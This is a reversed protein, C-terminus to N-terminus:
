SRSAAGRCPPHRRDAVVYPAAAQRPSAGQPLLAVHFVVVVPSARGAERCAGASQRSPAVRELSKTRQTSPSCRRACRREDIGAPRCRHAVQPAARRGSRAAGQSGPLYWREITSLGFGVAAATIPHRWERAAHKDIELSLAAGLALLHHSLMPTTMTSRLTLQYSEFACVSKV